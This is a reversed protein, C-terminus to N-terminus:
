KTKNKEKIHIYAIKASLDEIPIKELTYSAKEDRQCYNRLSSIFHNIKKQKGTITETHQMKLKETGM